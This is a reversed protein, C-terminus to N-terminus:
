FTNPNLANQPARVTAPGWQGDAATGVRGRLRRVGADTLPGWLGDVAPAPSHGLEDVARQQKAVPRVRTMGGRRRLLRRHSQQQTRLDVRDLVTDLVSHHM